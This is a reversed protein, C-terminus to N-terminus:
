SYRIVRETPVKSKFDPRAIIIEQHAKAFYSQIVGIPSIRVDRGYMDKPQQYPDPMKRIHTLAADFIHRHSKRTVAWFDPDGFLSIFNGWLGARRINSPLKIPSRTVQRATDFAADKIPVGDSHPKHQTGVPHANTHLTEFHRDILRIVESAVVPAGFRKVITSFAKEYTRRDDVDTEYNYWRSFQLAGLAIGALRHASNRRSGAQPDGNAVSTVREPNKPTFASETIGASQLMLLALSIYAERNNSAIDDFRGRRSYPNYNFFTMAEDDAWNNGQLRLTGDKYAEAYRCGVEGPTGVVAAYVPVDFGEYGKIGSFDYGKDAKVLKAKTM